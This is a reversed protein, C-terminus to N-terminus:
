IGHAPQFQEGFIKQWEEAALYNYNNQELECAKLANQWASYARSWWNRGVSLLNRSGPIVFIRDQQSLLRHFFDRILWDYWFVSKDRYAWQVVFETALLEIGLSSLDVNCHRKWAKLMWILHTAKYATVQDASAIARYEAAPNTWKWKGGDNTDCTMYTGDICVWCPVVEIAYTQFPVKIVQGDARLDTRPYTEELVEKVEQLLQSQKNGLRQSVRQYDEYPLMYLMDLDSPPRIATGKGYSGVTPGNRADFLQQPRYKANLCKAINTAKAVADQREEKLLQLSVMFDSFHRTVYIWQM